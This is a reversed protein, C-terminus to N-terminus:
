LSVDKLSQIKTDGAVMFAVGFCALYKLQQTAFVLNM